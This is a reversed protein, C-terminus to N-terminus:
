KIKGKQNFIKGKGKKYEMEIDSYEIAKLTLRNLTDIKDFLTADIESNDKLLKKEFTIKYFGAANIIEVLEAPRRKEVSFEVANPTIGNILRIVLHEIDKYLKTPTLAKKKLENTFYNTSNIFYDLDKEIERYAIKVLPDQKVIEMDPERETLNKIM